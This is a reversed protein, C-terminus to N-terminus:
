SHPGKGSINGVNIPAKKYIGQSYFGSALSKQSRTNISANGDSLNYQIAKLGVIIGIGAGAMSLIKGWKANFKIENIQSRISSEGLPDNEVLYKQVAQDYKMRDIQLDHVRDEGQLRYVKSIGRPGPRTFNEPHNPNEPHAENPLDYAKAAKHYDEISRKVFENIEEQKYLSYPIRVKLYREAPNFGIEGQIFSNGGHLPSTAGPSTLPKHSPVYGHYGHGAIVLCDGRQCKSAANLVDEEPFGLLTTEVKYFDPGTKVNVTVSNDIPINNKKFSGFGNESIVTKSSTNVHINNTVPADHKLEFGETNFGESGLIQVSYNPFKEKVDLPKEPIFEKLKSLQKELSQIKNKARMHIVYGTTFGAGESVGMIAIGPLARDFDDAWASQASVSPLLVLFTIVKKM